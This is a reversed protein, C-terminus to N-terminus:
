LHNNSEKIKKYKKRLKFQIIMKKRERNNDTVNIFLNGKKQLIRKNLDM